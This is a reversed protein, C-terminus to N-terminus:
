SARCREGHWRAFMGPSFAGGCYQCETKQRQYALRSLRAKMEETHHPPQREAMNQEQRIFRCNGERYSGADGYRALQFQGNHLGVKSPRLEAEIMMELYREFSLTSGPQRDYLRRWSDRALYVEQTTWGLQAALARRDIACVNKGSVTRPLEIM